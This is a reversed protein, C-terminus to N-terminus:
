LCFMFLVRGLGLVCPKDPSLFFYKKFIGARCLKWVTNSSLSFVLLLYALWHNLSCGFCSSLSVSQHFGCRAKVAAQSVIWLPSLDAQPVPEPSTGMVVGCASVEWILLHACCPRTCSLLFSQCVSQWHLIEHPFPSPWNDFIYGKPKACLM